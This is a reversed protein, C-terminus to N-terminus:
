YDTMSEVKQQIYQIVERRIEIPEQTSSPDTPKFCDIHFNNALVKMFESQLSELTTHVKRQFEELDDKSQLEKFQRTLEREVEAQRKIMKRLSNLRQPNNFLETQVQLKHKELHTSTPTCTNDNPISRTSTITSIDKNRLLDFRLKMYKQKSEQYQKYLEDHQEKLQPDNQLIQKLRSNELSERTSM